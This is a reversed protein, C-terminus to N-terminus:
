DRGFFPAGFSFIGGDSAVLWYGGTSDDVAMGVIPQNLVLGGTSGFFPAMGYSFIGGDTAVLYYGAGTASNAMAVIPLNLHLAGASGFFPAGFSFVGGDSAVLRYGNGTSTIGVVPANLPEGGMSGLFIADGFAFVGGDSAVLWYGRGDSTPALDVVPANLSKGGMSGYFAADGFSFVGGDSSLLWYGGGDPTMVIREIPQNLSLGNAGGYFPADGHTAIAGAGDVLLYGNDTPSPAMDTVPAPLPSVPTSGPATSPYMPGSSTWDVGTTYTSAAVIPNTPFVDQANDTGGGAYAPETVTTVTGGSQAYVSNSALEATIRQQGAQWDAQTTNGFLEDVWAHGQADFAVGVGVLDAAASLYGVAHGYSGMVDADVAASDYGPGGENGATTIRGPPNAGTYNQLTGTTALYEAFAQATEALVSDSALPALDTLQGDDIYDRAPQSRELNLRTIVDTAFGAENTSPATYPCQASPCTPSSEGSDHAADSTEAAAPIAFAVTAICTGLLVVVASCRRRQSHRRM